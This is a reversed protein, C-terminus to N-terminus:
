IPTTEFLEYGTPSDPCLGGGCLAVTSVVNGIALVLFLLLASLPLAKLRVSMPEARSFQRDDLLMIACGLIIVGATIFAWTYLHLGFVPNGYSGTGPVIYLLIQRM